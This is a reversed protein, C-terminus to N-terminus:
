RQHSSVDALKQGTRWAESTWHANRDVAEADIIVTKGKSANAADATLVSGCNAPTAHEGAVMVATVVPLQMATETAQPRHVRMTPAREEPEPEADNAQQQDRTRIM